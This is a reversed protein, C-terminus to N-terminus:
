VTKTPKSVLWDNVRTDIKEFNKFDGGHLSFEWFHVKFILEPM